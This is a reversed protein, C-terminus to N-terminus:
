SAGLLVGVRDLLLDALDSKHMLPLEEVGGAKSILSVRNTDVGFGAGAERADNVVVLDLGKADLKARGGALVDDTELAFGVIVAGNRRDARTETLIDPTAALELAWAGSGKKVKSTAVRVPRFDAPAAAMILADASRLARRVACAMEATTEVQIAAVGTPLVVGLPGAILVVDAGRRWAAAAVAVGMKGSSRNSLYRVPDLAERTPGATVVIRRGRLSVGRELARGIHALITEPEPMRGPGSGEGAALPGAEPELVTYGIERLRCANHLTQPHEWMRDNM